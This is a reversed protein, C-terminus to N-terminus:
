AATAVFEIELTVTEEVSAVSPVRPISIGWDAYKIETSATRNAGAAQRPSTTAVVTLAALLAGAVLRKMSIRM